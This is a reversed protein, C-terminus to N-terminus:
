VGLDFDVWGLEMLLHSPVGQVRYYEIIYDVEGITRVAEEQRHGAQHAREQRGAARRPQLCLGQGHVQERAGQAPVRRGRPPLADGHGARERRRPFHGAVVQFASNPFAAPAQNLLLFIVQFIVPFIM